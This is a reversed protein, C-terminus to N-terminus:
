IRRVKPHNSTFPSNIERAEEDEKDEEKDGFENSFVRLLTSKEGATNSNSNNSKTKHAPEKPENNAEKLRNNELLEKQIFSEYTLSDEPKFTFGLDRSKQPIKMRQSTYRHFQPTDSEVNKGLQKTEEYESWQNNEETNEELGLLSNKMKRLRELSMKHSVILKFSYLIM